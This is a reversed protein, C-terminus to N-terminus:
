ITNEAYYEEIWRTVMDYNLCIKEKYSYPLKITVTEDNLINISSLGLIPIDVGAATCLDEYFVTCNQYRPAYLEWYQNMKTCYQLYNYIEKKSFVTTGMEDIFNTYESQEDIRMINWINKKILGKKARHKGILYSLCREVKNKRACRILVIPHNFVNMIEMFNYFHTSFVYNEPNTISEVLEIDQPYRVFKHIKNLRNAVLNAFATSGSRQERFIWIVNMHKNINPAGV